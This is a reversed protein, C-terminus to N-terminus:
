LLVKKESPVVFVENWREMVKEPTYDRYANWDEGPSPKKFNRLILYLERPSNYKICKDGLIRLHNDCWGLAGLNQDKFTERNHGHVIIPKNMTSFEGISLGFTEGQDRAHLMADCTNIFQAKRKMDTTGPLQIIQPHACTWRHTHMFIFYHNPCGHFVLFWIVFWVYEIDFSKEGGYYGFVLANEPINLEKRLNDKEEQDVRIMHPVCPVDTKYYDILAQSIGGYSDGHPRSMDFVAHYSTWIGKPLPPRDPPTGYGLEYWIDVKEDALIQDRETWNSILYVRDNFRERFKSIAPQKNTTLSMIVSRNGLLTENYDAYDYIAVTTGRFSLLSEFFVITKM